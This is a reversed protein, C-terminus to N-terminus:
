VIVALQVATHAEDCGYTVGFVYAQVPSRYGSPTSRPLTKIRPSPKNIHRIHDLLVLAIFVILANLHARNSANVLCFIARQGDSSVIAGVAARAFRNARRARNM